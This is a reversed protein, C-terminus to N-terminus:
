QDGGLLELQGQRVAEADEIWQLGVAPVVWIDNMVFAISSDWSNLARIRKVCSVCACVSLLFRASRYVSRFDSNSVFAVDEENDRVSDISEMAIHAYQRLEQNSNFKM